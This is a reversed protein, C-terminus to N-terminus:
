RGMDTDSPSQGPPPDDVAPVGAADYKLPPLGFAADNGEVFIEDLEAGDEDHRLLLYIQVAATWFYSVAYSAPVLMLLKFWNRILWNASKLLDGQDQNLVPATM